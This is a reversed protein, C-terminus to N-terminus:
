SIVPPTVPAPPAPPQFTIQLSGVVTGDKTVTVTAVRSVAANTVQLEWGHGTAGVSVTPAQEAPTGTFTVSGSGVTTGDETITIAAVRDPTGSSLTFTLDVETSQGNPVPNPAGQIPNLTAM